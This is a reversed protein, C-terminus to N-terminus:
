EVLQSDVDNYEMAGSLNAIFCCTALIRFYKLEPKPIIDVAANLHFTRRDPIGRVDKLRTANRGFVFIDFTGIQFFICKDTLM